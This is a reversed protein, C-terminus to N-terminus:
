RQDADGEGGKKKKAAKTKKPTVEAVPRESISAVLASGSKRFQRGECIYYKPTEDVVKVESGDTLTLYIEHKKSM